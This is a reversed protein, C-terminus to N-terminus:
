RLLVRLSGSSSTVRIGMKIYTPSNGQPEKYRHMLAQQSFKTPAVIPSDANTQAILPLGTKRVKFQIRTWGRLDATGWITM